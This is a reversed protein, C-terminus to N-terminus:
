ESVVRWYGSPLLEDQVSEPVDLEFSDGSLIVWGAAELGELQRRFEQRGMRVQGRAADVPPVPGGAHAAIALSSALLLGVTRMDGDVDPGALKLFINQWLSEAYFTMVPSLGSAETSM